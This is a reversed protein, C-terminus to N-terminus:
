KLSNDITAWKSPSHHSGSLCLASRLVMHGIRGLIHISISLSNAGYCAGKVINIKVVNTWNQETPNVWM